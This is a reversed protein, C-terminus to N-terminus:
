NCALLIYPLLKAAAYVNSVRSSVNPCRGVGPVKVAPRSRWCHLREVFAVLDARVEFHPSLPALSKCARGRTWTRPWSLRRSRGAPVGTRAGLPQAKPAASDAVARVPGGPRPARGPLYTSSQHEQNNSPKVFSPLVAADGRKLLGRRARANPRRGLRRGRLEREESVSDM